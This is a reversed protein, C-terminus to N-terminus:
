DVKIAKKTDEDFVGTVKALGLKKQLNVLAIKTIDGFYNTLVNIKFYGSSKLIKQLEMVDNGRMGFSLNRPFKKNTIVTSTQKEVLCGVAMRTEVDFEGTIKINKTKQFNKLANETLKGFFSSENGRSGVGKASIVFGHDNLYKQLEKVQASVMNLKLDASCFLGKTSNGSMPTSTPGSVVTMTKFPIAVISFDARNIYIDLFKIEMDEILDNNLDVKVSDLVKVKKIQPSSNIQLTIIKSFLDFDIIKLNHKETGIVNSVSIEFNIGSNIYGSFNIGLVDVKGVDVMKGMDVFRSSQGLTNVLPLLFAQGGVSILSFTVRITHVAGINYFVYSDVAGVSVDDVFVDLVRYNFNPTITYTLNSGYNKNTIGAPSIAGNEGATATINYTDITFSAVITHNSAINSFTYTTVAGVSVDDVLVDLVHYNTAPTITYTKSTGYNVTSVGSDSISGNAGASATLTYTNIAFSAAFSSDATINNDTRSATAVADNWSTFHYGTNPTATVASGSEQYDVNQATTGSITGNEVASYQVSFVPTVTVSDLQVLQGGNSVFYAKFLLSGEGKPFTAINTDIETAINAEAVGSVTETWGSNYWYWTTGADNSLQYKIEGSNKTATESFDALSTFPIAMEVDPTISPSTTSYLSVEAGTTATPEVATYQRVRVWDIEHNGGAGWPTFGIYGSLIADSKTGSVETLLTGFSGDVYRKTSFTTGNATIREYFWAASANSSTSNAFPTFASLLANDYGDYRQRHAQISTDNRPVASVSTNTEKRIFTSFSYFPAGTSRNRSELIGNTLQYSKSILAPLPNAVKSMILVGSSVRLGSSQVQNWITDDITNYDENTAVLDAFTIDHAINLKIHQGASQISGDSSASNWLYVDGDHEMYFPDAIQGVSGGAGEDATLRALVTGAPDQTWTILDTSHYRYLDTPLVGATSGHVWMWYESGIKTVFPGGRAGTEDIVPNSEYKTWTIGDSSTALGLAWPNVGGSAEYIMKWDNAGEVWVHNNVIATNDWAGSGGRPIASNKTLVFNVGDESTYLDLEQTADETYMYYTGDHKLVFSRGFGTLIPNGSYRVWTVGDVSEAYNMVSNEWGSTHWMKFVNTQDTLIQPDTDYIVIPEHVNNEDFDESAQLVTGQPDWTLDSAFDDFLEFTDAGSQLDTASDNGYYVYITESELATIEPVNVWVNASESESSYADFMYPILATGTSDTFRIDQGATQAHSFDFNEGTLVVNVQYNTLTNANGTNDITISRRFKYGTNYWNDTDVLQAQGVSVEMKESDFSYDTGSDFSWARSASLAEKPCLNFTNFIFIFLVLLHLFKKM